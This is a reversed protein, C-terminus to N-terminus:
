RCWTRCRRRAAAKLPARRSMRTGPLEVPYLHAQKRAKRWEQLGAKWAVFLSGQREMVEVPVWAKGERVLLDDSYSCMKWEEAQSSALAFAVYVHGPVTIFATEVQISALLSIYLVSLDSCNGCRDQLTQMPLKVSDM